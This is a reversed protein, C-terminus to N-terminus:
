NRLVLLSLYLPPSGPPSAGSSLLPPRGEPLASLLAVHAWDLVALLVPTAPADAAPTPHVTQSGQQCHAQCLQPQDTDMAGPMQGDCGPMEAMAVAARSVAAIAPCAYAATALQVSFLVVALWGSLWRTSRRHLRM